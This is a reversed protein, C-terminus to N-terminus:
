TSPNKVDLSLATLSCNLSFIGDNQHTLSMTTCKMPADGSQLTSFFQIIHPMTGRATTQITKKTRWGQPTERIPGCSGLTVHASRAADLIQLLHDKAGLSMRRQHSDIAEQLQAREQRLKNSKSRIELQALHERQM